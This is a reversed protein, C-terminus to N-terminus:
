CSLALSWFAQIHLSKTYQQMLLLMDSNLVQEALHNRMKLAKNLYFHEDTLTCHIRLTHNVNDWMYADRFHAWEIFGFPHNILHKHDQEHGTSYLSNRIKKIVHSIDM